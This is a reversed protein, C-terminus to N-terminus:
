LLVPAHKDTADPVRECCALEFGNKLTGRHTNPKSGPKPADSAATPTSSRSTSTEPTASRLTASCPLSQRLAAPTHSGHSFELSWGLSQFEPGHDSHSPAPGPSEPSETLSGITGTTSELRDWLVLYVKWPGVVRSAHVLLHAEGLLRCNSLVSHRRKMSRCCLTSGHVTVVVHCRSTRKGLRIRPRQTPRCDVHDFRSTRRPASRSGHEAHVRLTSCARRPDCLGPHRAPHM